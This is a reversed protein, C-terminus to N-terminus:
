AEPQPAPQVAHHDRVLEAKHRKACAAHASGNLMGRRGCYCCERATLHGDFFSAIRDM